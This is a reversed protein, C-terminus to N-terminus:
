TGAATTPLMQRAPRAGPMSSRRRRASSRGPPRATDYGSVSMALESAGENIWSDQQPHVTWHVFHQAEHALTANFGDSGLAYAGRSLNMYVM